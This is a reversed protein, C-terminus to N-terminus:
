NDLRVILVKICKHKLYQIDASTALCFYFLLCHRDLELTSVFHFGIMLLENMYNCGWCCRRM